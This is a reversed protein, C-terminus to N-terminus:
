IFSLIEHQQDLTFCHKDFLDKYNHIETSFEDITMPSEGCLIDKDVEPINRKASTDNLLNETFPIISFSYLKL